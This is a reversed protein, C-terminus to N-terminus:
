WESSEVEFSTSFVVYTVNSGRGFVCKNLKLTLLYAFASLSYVTSFPVFCHFHFYIPSPSIADVM